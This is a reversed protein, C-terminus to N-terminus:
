QKKKRRKKAGGKQVGRSEGGAQYRKVHSAPLWSNHKESYGYWKVLAERPRRGLKRYKVVKEIKYERMDDKPVFHLEQAYFSGKIDAGLSDRLLYRPPSSPIRFRVEFLEESFTEYYSRTFKDTSYAIRVTDGVEFAFAQHQKAVKNVHPMYFKMYVDLANDETVDVPAMSISKHVTSNYSTVLDQLVDIYRYTQKNYMYKFLKGKLTQIVREAYNAKKDSFTTFYHVDHKDLLERVLKNDIERGKDSRLRSPIRKDVAFVDAIADRVETAKKSKVPRVWCFRSLLDIFVVLFAVNDNYEKIMSLDALDMDWAQDIDSVIIRERPFKRRKQTYVSATDQYLLWKQVASKTLGTPSDGQSKIYGWLKDLSSFSGGSAPNYYIAKLYKDVVKDSPSSRGM